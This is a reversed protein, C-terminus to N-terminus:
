RRRRWIMFAALAVGAGAAIAIRRGRPRGQTDVVAGKM